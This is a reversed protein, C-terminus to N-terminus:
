AVVVGEDATILLQEETANGVGAKDDVLSDTMGDVQRLRVADDSVENVEEGFRDRGRAWSGHASDPVAQRTLPAFNAISGYPHRQTSGDPLDTPQTVNPPCTAAAARRGIQRGPPTHM